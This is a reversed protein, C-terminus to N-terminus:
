PKLGKGRLWAAPDKGSGDANRIELHLHAGTVNGTAGSIAIVDGAKVTQGVQVKLSTNHAYQSMEGNAHRIVVQHGYASNWGAKVVEGGAVALVRKGAEIAFDLGTHYGSSWSKGAQGFTATITYPDALPLSYGGSVSEPVDDKIFRRVKWSSDPTVSESVIGRKTNAAHVVRGGGLYLMEHGDPDNSHVTLIIVDGPQIKSPDVHDGFKVQQYTTRPPSIKGNTATRFAYQVLGSCDFGVNPGQEGQTYKKGVQQLALSIVKQVMSGMKELAKSYKLMKEEIVAIYNKTEKFYDPDGQGPIGRWACVRDPGANYGGLMLKWIEVQAMEGAKPPDVMPGGDWKECKYKWTGAIFDKVDKIIDCNYRGLAMIADAPDERDVKGNNDDDQALPKGDRGKAKWTGDIFQTLGHAGSGDNHAKENWGSEQEIQAAVLHPPSEPCISGARKVWLVYKAPIKSEDFVRGDVGMAVNEEDGFLDPEEFSPVPMLFMMFILLIVIIMGTPGLITFVMLIKKM